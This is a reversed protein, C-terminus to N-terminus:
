ANSEALLTASKQDRLTMHYASVLLMSYWVCSGASPDETNDTSRAFLGEKGLTKPNRSTPIEVVLRCDEAFAFVLFCDGAFGVPLLTLAVIM